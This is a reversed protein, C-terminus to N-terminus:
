RGAGIQSDLSTSSAKNQEGPRGLIVSISNIIEDRLSPLPAIGLVPKQHHPHSHPCLGALHAQISIYIICNCDFLLEQIQWSPQSVDKCRYPEILCHKVAGTAFSFNMELHQQSLSYGPPKLSLPGDTRRPSFHIQWAQFSSLSRPVPIRPKYVPWTM